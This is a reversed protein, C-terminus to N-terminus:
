RYAVNKAARDFKTFSPMPAPLQLKGVEREQTLSLIISAPPM